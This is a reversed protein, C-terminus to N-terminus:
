LPHNNRTPADDIIDIVRIHLIKTLPDMLKEQGSESIRLYADGNLRVCTGDSARRWTMDAGLVFGILVGFLLAAIMIILYRTM